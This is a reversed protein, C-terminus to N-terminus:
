LVVAVGLVYEISWMYTNQNEDFDKVIRMLPNFNFCQLNVSCCLTSFDFGLIKLEFRKPQIKDYYITNM